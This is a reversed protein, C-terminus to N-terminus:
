IEQDIEKITTSVESLIDKFHCANLNELFICKKTFYKQMEESVDKLIEDNQFRPDTLINLVAKQWTILSSFKKHSLDQRIQSLPGDGYKERESIILSMPRCILEDMVQICLKRITPNLENDMQFYNTCTWFM